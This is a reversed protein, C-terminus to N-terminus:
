RWLARYVVLGARTDEFVDLAKDLRIRNRELFEQNLVERLVRYTEARPVLYRVHGWVNLENKARLSVAAARGIVDGSSRLTRVEGASQRNLTNPETSAAVVSHHSPSLFVGRGALWSVCTKLILPFCNVSALRRRPL